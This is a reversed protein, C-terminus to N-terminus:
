NTFQNHNDDLNIYNQVYQHVIWTEAIIEYLDNCSNNTEWKVIGNSMEKLGVPFNFVFPLTFEQDLPVFCIPEFRRDFRTIEGIIENDIKVIIKKVTMNFLLGNDRKMRSIFEKKITQCHVKTFDKQQKEFDIWPRINIEQKTNNRIIKDPNDPTVECQRVSYTSHTSYTLHVSYTSHVSSM